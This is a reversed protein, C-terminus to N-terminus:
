GKLKSAVKAKKKKIYKSIQRQSLVLWNPRILRQPRQEPDSLYRYHLFLDQYPIGVDEGACLAAFKASAISMYHIYTIRKGKDYLLHDKEEFNSSWHNGTTQGHYAFNYYSIGSRLVLYNFLPQDSGRPSIVESEGAELKELLDDILAPNFVNKKSAFWGSCFLRSQIPDTTFTELLPLQDRQFIYELDSRHQFDDTVWDYQELKEYVHDIPGMLLTDADFYIFKEFPGDFSCLKRHFSVRRVGPTGQEQRLRQATKHSEWAKICVNEWYAISEPNDLLTVHPRNTLEAKIRDLKDNYPIVCVPMPRGANAGISNLLAVLQDFVVDNAFTYIGDTM